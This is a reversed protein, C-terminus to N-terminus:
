RLEARDSGFGLTRDVELGVANASRRVSIGVFALGTLLVGTAVVILVLAITGAAAYPVMISVAILLMAVVVFLASAYISQLARRLFRHRERLLLLQEDILRVWLASAPKLADADILTGDPITSREVKETTTDRM